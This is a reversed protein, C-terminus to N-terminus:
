PTSGDGDIAAAVKPIFMEMGVPISLPSPASLGISEIPHPTTLGAGDLADCLEVVRTVPLDTAAALAEASVPASMSALRSILRYLKSTEALTAGTLVVGHVPDAGLAITGNPQIRPTLGALLPRAPRTSAPSHM